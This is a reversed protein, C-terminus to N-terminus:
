TAVEKNKKANQHYWRKYHTSCMDKSHHPRGCDEVKCKRTNEFVAVPAMSGYKAFAEPDDYEPYFDIISRSGENSIIKDLTQFSIREIRGAVYDNIRKSSTGCRVAFCAAGERECSERIWPLIPGIPLAKPIKHM